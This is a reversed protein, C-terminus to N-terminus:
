NFRYRLTGRVEHLWNHDTTVTDPFAVDNSIRNIYVARYGVDAVLAGFDYGVGVMGAAAFSVNDGSPVTVGAPSSVEFNNFAVGTGAGVYGFAGGAAGYGYDGGFSFDYYANALALTSRLKLTYDGQRAGYTADKTVKLGENGILDVTADVRLGTGTEYGVGAGVSYGYGMAVFPFNTIVSTGGCAVCEYASAEKAWLANGAASGRLYFSGQVGYDVDPIEIVPPYYPLDAAIAQGGVLAAGAVMIAAILKRM